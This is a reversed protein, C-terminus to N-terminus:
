VDATTLTRERAFPRGEGVENALRDFILVATTFIGGVVFTWIGFLYMFVPEGHGVPGYIVIAVGVSFVLLGMSGLFLGTSRRWQKFIGIGAVLLGSAALFQLIVHWFLFGMNSTFSSWGVSLFYAWAVLWSIGFVSTSTGMVFREVSYSRSGIKVPAFEATGRFPIGGSLLICFNAGIILVTVIMLGILFYM